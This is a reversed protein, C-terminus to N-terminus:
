DIFLSVRTLLDRVRTVLYQHCLELGKRDGKLRFLLSGRLVILNGSGGWPSINLTLCVVDGIERKTNM